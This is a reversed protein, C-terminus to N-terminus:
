CDVMHKIIPCAERLFVRCSLSILLKRCLSTLTCRELAKQVYCVATVEFREIASFMTMIKNPGAQVDHTCTCVSM